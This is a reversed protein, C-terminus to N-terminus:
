FPIDGDPDSTGGFRLGEPAQHKEANIIEEVSLKTIRDHPVIYYEGGTHKERALAHKRADDMSCIWTGFPTVALLYRATSETLENWTISVNPYRESSKVEVSFLLKPDGFLHDRDRYVYLDGNQSNRIAEWEGGTDFPGIGFLEKRAEQWMVVTWNQIKLCEQLWHQALVEAHEGSTQRISGQVYTSTRRPLSKKRLKETARAIAASYDTKTAPQVAEVSSSTRNTAVRGTRTASSGRRTVGTSAKRRSM